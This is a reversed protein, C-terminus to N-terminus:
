PLSAIKNEEKKTTDAGAPPAANEEKYLEGQPEKAGPPNTGKLKIIYSTIQAIQKPSYDDKWSKMGKEPWGYKISIFIDKVSGGHIWYDDTLNPGVMGGGDAKHCAACATEFVKKGAEIDGGESLLKVNNEDINSASKALYAEQQLAAEKVAIQYEETSDPASHSIYGRWLYICAFLITIYFGYLWWPPLRNDLERIGDYDHGLDLDAEEKVPRFSNLKDWIKKWSSEKPAVITVAEVAEVEAEYDLKIFKKLFSALVAIIVLELFVVVIMFYFTTDSMGSVIPGKAVVKEATDQAMALNSILLLGAIAAATTGGGSSKQKAAEYREYYIKAAGIVTNALMTIAILLGVIIFLLLIAVPNDLESHKPGNQALVALPALAPVATIIKKM